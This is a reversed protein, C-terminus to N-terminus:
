SERIFGKRLVQATQKRKPFSKRCGYKALSGAISASAASRYPRLKIKQDQRNMAFFYISNIKFEFLQVNLGSVPEYTRIRILWEIGLKSLRSIFVNIEVFIRWPIATCTTGAQRQIFYGRKAALLVFLHMWHFVLTLLQIVV